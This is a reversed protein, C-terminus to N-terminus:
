KSGIVTFIGVQKLAFIVTPILVVVIGVILATRALKQRRIRSNEVPTLTEPILGVVPAGLFYEVDREDEIRFFHRAETFAVTLLATGLALGM